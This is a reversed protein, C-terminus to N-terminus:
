KKKKTPPTAPAEAVPEAVPEAADTTGDIVTWGALRFGEVETPHVDVLVPGGPHAPEERRMKILKDAM